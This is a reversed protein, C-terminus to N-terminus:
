WSFFLFTLQRIESIEPPQWDKSHPKRGGRRIRFIEFNQDFLSNIKSTIDM